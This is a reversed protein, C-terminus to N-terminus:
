RRVGPATIALGEGRWALFLELALMDRSGAELAEARVGTNCAQIRRGISGLSQWELRYAPWGDSQAQSITDGRLKRGVHDDHCQSCALNLQGQREHFFARGRELHFRTAEDTRVRRPLGRSQLAVFATLALLPETEFALAKAGQHGSRCRNIRMELNLLSQSAPDVAPYRAAVGHMTVAAEGHCAACSKGNGGDPLTRWLAAGQEIWLLGPNAGSDDELQRTETSQFSRGSQVPHPRGPEAAASMAISATILIAATLGRPM